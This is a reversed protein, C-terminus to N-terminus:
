DGGQIFVVQDSKPSLAPHGCQAGNAQTLNVPDGKGEKLLIDDWEIRGTALDPKRSQMDGTKRFHEIYAEIRRIGSQQLLM